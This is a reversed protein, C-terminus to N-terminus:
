SNASKGGVLVEVSNRGRQKAQYLAEDVRKILSGFDDEPVLQTLGFSATIKGVKDFTYLEIAQRLEEAVKIGSDLETQLLLVMFEEGGWRAAIDTNRLNNNVVQVVTQLVYDGVDHGYTDNVWKFQDLDYMILSFPMGYRRVRGM